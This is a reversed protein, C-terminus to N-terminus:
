RQLAEPGQALFLEGDSRGLDYAAQLGNPDTYDWKNVPVPRTPQLYLVDAHGKLRDPNYRRSLLVLAPREEPRLAALGVNDVLGGDLVPGGQYHMLPVLPPTASTMLLLDALEEVTNVSNLSAVVPQFGVKAPLKPHLPGALHKELTYCLFGLLTGGMAGAWRPPRAMLVRLEPGNKLRQPTDPDMVDLIGQRFIGVHPCIPQSNFLNKLNFNSPNRRVAKKFYTLVRDTENQTVTIAMSAGASVGAVVKPKLGIEPAVTDWLGSQWWCRAGGGAFVVAQFEYDLQM